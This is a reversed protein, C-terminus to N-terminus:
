RRKGIMRIRGAPAGGALGTFAIQIGDRDANNGTWSITTTGTAATAGTARQTVVISCNAGGAVASRLRTLTFTNNASAATTAATLNHNGSIALVLNDVSAPTLTNTTRSAGQTATTTTSTGIKDYTGSVEIVMYTGNGAGTLDFSTTASESGDCLRTYIYFGQFNVQALRQTYAASGATVGGTGIAFDSSMIALLSNGATPTAGLTVTAPDSAAVGDASQVVAAVAM